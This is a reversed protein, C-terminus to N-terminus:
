QQRRPLGAGFEGLDEEQARAEQEAQLRATADGERRPNKRATLHFLLSLATVPQQSRRLFAAADLWARAADVLDVEHDERPLQDMTEFAGMVASLDSVIHRRADFAEGLARELPSGDVVAAPPGAEPVVRTGTPAKRKAGADPPPGEGSWLWERPVQAADALADSTSRSLGAGPTALFTAIHSKSRLKAATALGRQTFGRAKLIWRIRDQITEVAPLSADSTFLNTADLAILSKVAPQDVVLYSTM